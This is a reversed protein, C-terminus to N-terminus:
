WRDLMTIKPVKVWREEDTNRSVDVLEIRMMVNVMTIAKWDISCTCIAVYHAFNLVILHKHTVNTNTIVNEGYRSYFVVILVRVRRGVHKIFVRM